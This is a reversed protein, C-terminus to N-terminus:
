GGYKRYFTALSIGLSKAAKEKDGDHEDLVHQIYTREKEKLFAKLSMGKPLAALEGGAPESLRHARPRPASRVNDPLDEVSIRSDDCLAGARSIVNELERVNGPWNYANLAALAEPSISIERGDQEGLGDLFHRVLLPVDSKRDRLPPLEIPIVSLRYYLDERFRSQSILNELDENTAAVIRVDVPISQAAGVPRVEHEQLARLLSLQMNVPISGVEDLFLTGGHATEFFGKKPRNAGTFAGKVHGFLESELLTDPVAACNIALFPREARPSSAHIARAVLEKGTGSEGRILITSDTRAVKEVMAYLQRMSEHDGVMNSFHFQTKLTEKLNENEELAQEYSLARQVTLLLEDVKFPKCIYDFAGKRMAEVATEVAAYATMMIVALHPQLVRAEELLQIGDVPEMRIDSVMLQYTDQQLAEIAEAANCATKVRYGERRFLARLVEVIGVEDDVILIRAKGSM